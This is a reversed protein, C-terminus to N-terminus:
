LAVDQSLHKESNVGVRNKLDSVITLYLTLSAM